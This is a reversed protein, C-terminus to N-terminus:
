GDVVDFYVGLNQIVNEFSQCTVRVFLPIIKLIVSQEDLLDNLYRWSVIRVFVWCLRLFVFLSFCLLMEIYDLLM